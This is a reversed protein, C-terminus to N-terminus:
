NSFSIDILEEQSSILTQIDSKHFLTNTDIRFTESKMKYKNDKFTSTVQLLGSESIRLTINIHVEGKPKRPLDEITYNGIIFHTQKSLDVYEDRGILLQINATRQYDKYTKFTFTKEQPLSRNGYIYKKFKSKGQLIGIAIPELDVIDLYGDDSDDSGDVEDSEDNYEKYKIELSDHNTKVKNKTKIEDLVNLGKSIKNCIISAGFAIAEEPSVGSLLKIRNGFYEKITKEVIPINSSGGVLIIQTIEDSTINANDIAKDVCDTLKTLFNNNFIYEFEARYLSEDLDISYFFSPIYIKVHVTNSLYIKAEESKLKLLAMSNLTPDKGPHKMKFREIINNEIFSDLNAGSLNPDTVISLITYHSGETQVISASTHGGGFDFVLFIGKDIKCYHQYAAVAATPENIIRTVPFKVLSAARRFANRQKANFYPPVTLVCEFPLKDTRKKLSELFDNFIFSVIQEPSFRQLRNQYKVEILINKKKIM